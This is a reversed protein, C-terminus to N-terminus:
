DIKTCTGGLVAPTKSSNEEIYGELDAILFRNNNLNFRFVNLGFVHCELFPSYNQLTVYKETHKECPSPSKTGAQTLTVSYYHFREDVGGIKEMRTRLFKLRLDFKQDTNLSAGTWKKTQKDYALGGVFEVICFYSADQVLQASAATLPVSAIFIAALFIRM